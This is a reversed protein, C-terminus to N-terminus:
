ATATWDFSRRTLDLLELHEDDEIMELMSRGGYADAPKRAIGPIRAPVLYHRLLSVVQAVSTVKAQRDSPVGEALWQSVAQRTVGFLRGADTLSLDFADIVEELPSASDDVIADVVREFERVGRDDVRFRSSLRATCPSPWVLEDAEPSMRRMDSVLTLAVSLGPRDEVLCSRFPLAVAERRAVRALWHQEPSATPLRTSLFDVLAVYTTAYARAALRDGEIADALTEDIASVWSSLITDCAERVEDYTGWLAPEASPM